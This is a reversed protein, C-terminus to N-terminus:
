PSTAATVLIDVHCRKDAQCWCAFVGGAALVARAKAVIDPHSNLHLRYLDLSRDLGYKRASYPNAYESKRFTPTHRGAYVAEPQGPPLTAHFLDGVVKTRGPPFPAITRTM